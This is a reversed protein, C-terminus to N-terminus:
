TAEQREEYEDSMEKLDEFEIRDIWLNLQENMNTLHKNIKVMNVRDETGEITREFLVILLKNARSLNERMAYLDKIEDKM